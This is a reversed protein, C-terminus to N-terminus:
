LNKEDSICSNKLEALLMQFKEEDMPLEISTTRMKSLAAHPDYKTYSYIGVRDYLVHLNKSRPDQDFSQLSILHKVGNKEAEIYKWNRLDYADIRGASTYDPRGAGGRTAAKFGARILRNVIGLREAERAKTYLTKIEQFKLVDIDKKNM